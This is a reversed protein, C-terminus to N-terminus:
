DRWNDCGCFICKNDPSGGQVPRRIHYVHRSIGKANCLVDSFELVDIAVGAIKACQERYTQRVKNVHDKAAQVAREAVFIAAEAERCEYVAKHNIQSM